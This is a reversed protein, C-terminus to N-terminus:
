TNSVEALVARVQGERDLCYWFSVPNFVYGFLRPLTQIVVEGDAVEALGHRTLLDRIWPLLPSGDRAGHDREHFAFLNFRNIGLIPVRIQDLKSLPLCLMFLGYSFRNHVPAHREHMAAGYSVTAQANM